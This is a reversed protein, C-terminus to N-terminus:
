SGSVRYARNGLLISCRAFLALLARHLFREVVLVNARSRTRSGGVTRQQFDPSLGTGFISTSHNLALSWSCDDIRRTFM